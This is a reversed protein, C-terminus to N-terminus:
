LNLGFTDVSGRMKVGRLGRVTADGRRQIGRRGVNLRSLARGLHTRNKVDDRRLGVRSSWRQYVQFVEDNTVYDDDSDTIVLCEEVFQREYDEEDRYADVDERVSEPVGLSGLEWWDRLGRLAWNLIGSAEEQYLLDGYNKIKRQEDVKGLCLVRHMRAWVGDSPDKIPPQANGAIWLKFRAQFDFFDKNMQRAHIWKSGTLAKVREVNLQRTARTEDVFVMRAGLLDALITPHQDDGGTLLSTSATQAYSGLLALLPEVFANKGNSGSGELFFFNREGVDGTLTYGVSRRIYAVLAPDGNCMFNVHDEWRPCGADPQYDVEALQTCLDAPRSPRLEGTRLDVTGNRVVLLHPDADLANAVAVLEPESTAGDVMARRRALQESTRAWNLWRDAADRDADGTIAEARIADVVNKTLDMVRNTNDLAWRRGDWVYWRGRDAAYRVLDRHLAVFRLTNGLDSANAERPEGEAVEVRAVGDRSQRALREALDQVERPLTLPVGPPYTDWVRDILEHIHEATWPNAPDENSLRQLALMGLTKAEDIHVRRTRMSCVWRFLETQQEGPPIGEILVRRPDVAHGDADTIEVRDDRHGGTGSEGRRRAAVTGDVRLAAVWTPPLETLETPTPVRESPRGEGTFWRYERATRPHQSPWVVAYRHHSRIIEVGSGRGLDSVWELESPVRYWRIGSGDGRSTSTWTAPLDGYENEAHGLTILGRRGDYADVDIGVVDAPLRVAVNDTGRRAIWADVEADTPWRGDYGTFGQPLNVDKGVVPLVGLWGAERYLRASRGYPGSAHADGRTEDSSTSANTM